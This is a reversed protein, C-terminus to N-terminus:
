RNETSIRKQVVNSALDVIASCGTIRARGPGANGWMLKSRSSTQLPSPWPPIWSCAHESPIRKMTAPFGSNRSLHLRSKCKRVREKKRAHQKSWNAGRVAPMCVYGSRYLVDQVQMNQEMSNQTGLFVLHLISGDRLRIFGVKRCLVIHAPQDLNFRLRM